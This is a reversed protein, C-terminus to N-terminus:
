RPRFRLLEESDDETIEGLEALHRLHAHAEGVAFWKQNQPFDEWGACRIQWHMRGAVDYATMNPYRCVIDFCESLRRQHHEQLEKIRRHMDGSERHGPLAREVDMGNLMDLSKIYDGLSDEVFNWLTINPTIDFLVTDGTFMARSDPIYFCMHAPSHGPTRVARLTYDGCQFEDGDDIPACGAFGGEAMAGRSWPVVICKEVLESDFGARVLKVGDLKVSWLRNEGSMWNLEERPLSLRAGREGLEPSLGSHDGHCHTMLLDTREPRVNLERLGAYLAERCEPMRFATDILIDRNGGKIVYDNTYRLPSKPLPIKIRYIDKLIQEAM